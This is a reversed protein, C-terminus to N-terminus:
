HAHKNEFFFFFFLTFLKYKQLGESVLANRTAYVIDYFRKHCLIKGRTLTERGSGRGVWADNEVGQERRSGLGRYTWQKNSWRTKHTERTSQGRALPFIYRVYFDGQESCCKVMMQCHYNKMGRVSNYTFTKGRICYDLRKVRINRCSGSMEASYRPIKKKKDSQFFPCLLLQGVM